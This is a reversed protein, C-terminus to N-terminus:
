KLEDVFGETRGSFGDGIEDIEDETSSLNITINDGEDDLEIIRRTTGNKM